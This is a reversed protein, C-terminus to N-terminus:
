AQRAPVRHLVIVVPLTGCLDCPVPLPGDQRQVHVRLRDRCAPCDGGHQARELRGVRRSLTALM